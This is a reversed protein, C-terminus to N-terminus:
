SKILLTKLINPFLKVKKSRMGCFGSRTINWKSGETVDLSLNGSFIGVLLVSVFTTKVLKIWTYATVRCSQQWPLVFPLFHM